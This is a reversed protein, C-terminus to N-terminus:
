PVGYVVAHEYTDMLVLPHVRGLATLAQDDFSQIGLSLRTIGAERYGMFRGAEASGPNAEM